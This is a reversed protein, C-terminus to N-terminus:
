CIIPDQRPLLGRYHCASLPPVRHYEMAGGGGAWPITNFANAIDLSVALVVGGELIIAESLARVHLIADITFRGERFGYQEDNLNPGIRSLHRVLRGAIVKELLKGAEDLLCIPRYASPDSAQKNKKRLLVM